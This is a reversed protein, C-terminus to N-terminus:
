KGKTAKEVAQEAEKLLEGAEAGLKSTDEKLKDRNIKM